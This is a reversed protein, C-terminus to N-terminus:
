GRRATYFKASLRVSVIQALITICLFGIIYMRASLHWVPLDMQVSAVVMCAVVVTLILYVMRGKESGMRFVVPLNVAMILLGVCVLVLDVTLQSGLMDSSQHRILGWVLIAAAELIGAGATAGLGILYKSLVLDMRSYPMMEAYYDWKAQDDYAIATIPLMSAYMIAFGRTFDNDVIIFALMLFIFLRAQTKLVCIDKILLGKM